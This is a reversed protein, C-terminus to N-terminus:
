VLTVCNRGAAKSSALARGAREIIAAETDDRRIMTAGISITVHLAGGVASLTSREVLMRLKDAVAAARVGDVHQLVAVFEEGAWRGVSDSGRLNRQLTQAVMALVADGVEKTYQRNFAEFGDIDCHVVASSVGHRQLEALCAEIRGEIFRRNGVGTLPDRLAQLEGAPASRLGALATPHDILTEVAGVVRGRTDRLAIDRLLVPVRQGGSHRIFAEAERAKGDALTAALPCGDECLNRGSADVPSLLRHACTIGLAENEPYGTIREAGQSWFTIRREADVFYVGDALGNLIEKFLSARVPM